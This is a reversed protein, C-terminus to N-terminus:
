VKVKSPGAPDLVDLTMKHSEGRGEQGEWGVGCGHYESRLLGRRDM